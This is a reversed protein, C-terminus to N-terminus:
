CLGSGSNIGLNSLPIIKNTVYEELTNIKGQDIEMTEGTAAKTKKKAEKKVVKKQKALIREITERDDGDEIVGDGFWEDQDFWTATTRDATIDPHELSVCLENTQEDM